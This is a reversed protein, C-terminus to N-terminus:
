GFLDNFEGAAVSRPRGPSTTSGSTSRRRRRRPRRARAPHRPVRLRRGPAAPPRRGAQPGARGDISRRSGSRRRASRPARRAGHVRAAGRTGFLELSEMIHEHRNKGAQSCFIVQDVGCEEYRRLYDRIQDPTGIAGRLGFFGGEQVVKRASATATARRPRSRTRRRLGREGRQAAPVRGLRRHARPPSSRVRLLPRALLRLLERGRARAAASGARRRPVHLHHRVAINPNVADGIPVCETALTTTTTPWGTARRRPTSSRSRWRASGTRRRSTSPTAAAARWGCRRTRSRSRSPCSTARRCPSTRGPTVPSRRRPSAACRSGCGRRGCRGSTSRTSSSGASSPRRRRSAAHRLRRPRGVRPRADRDARGRAGSPQVAAADARHRPRPPHAAHAAVVAALFM